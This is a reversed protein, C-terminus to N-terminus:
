ARQQLDEMTGGGELWRQVWAPKRGMGSWSLSADHPHQCKAVRINRPKKENRAFIDDSTLTFRAILQRITRIANDREAHERSRVEDDIKKKFEILQAYSLNTLEM